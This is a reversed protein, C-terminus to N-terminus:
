NVRCVVGFIRGRFCDFARGCTWFQFEPNAWPDPLFGLLDNWRCAVVSDARRFSKQKTEERRLERMIRFRRARCM